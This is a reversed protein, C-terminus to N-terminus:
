VYIFVLGYSILWILILPFFLWLIYFIVLGGAMLAVCLLGVFIIPIRFIFGFIRSLVNFIITGFYDELGGGSFSDTIRKWPAFLTRMLIPISFLEIVYWLFNRWVDLTQRLATSYHWALYVFPFELLGM